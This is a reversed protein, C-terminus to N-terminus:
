ARRHAATTATTRQAGRRGARARRKASLAKTVVTAPVANLAVQFVQASWRPVSDPAADEAAVEQQVLAVPGDPTYRLDLIRRRQGPATGGAPPTDVYEVDIEGVIAETPLDDAILQAHPAITHTPPTPGTTAGREGADPADTFARATCPSLRHVSYWGKMKLQSQWHKIQYRNRRPDVLEVEYPGSRRVRNKFKTRFENQTNRLWVIDGEKFMEKGGQRAAAKQKRQRDYLLRKRRGDASAQLAGARRAAKETVMRQQYEAYTEDSRPKAYQSPREAVPSDLARDLQLVPKQGFTLEFPSHKRTQSVATWFSWRAADLHAAWESDTHPSTVVPTYARVAAKFTKVAREIMGNAQANRPAIPDLECGLRAALAKMGEGVMPRDNDVTIRKPTGYRMVWIREFAAGVDEASKTHVLDYELASTARDIVLVVLPANDDGASKEFEVVDVHVHEFAGPLDADTGLFADPPGESFQQCRCRAIYNKVAKQMNAWWVRERLRLVTSEASRHGGGDLPAAHARAIWKTREEPPIYLRPGVSGGSPFVVLRGHRDRAPRLAQARRPAAKGDAAMALDRTWASGDAATAYALNIREGNLMPYGGTAHIHREADLAQQELVTDSTEPEPQWVDDEDGNIAATNDADAVGDLNAPDTPLTPEAPEPEERWEDDDSGAGDAHPAAAHDTVLAPTSAPPSASDSTSHASDATDGSSADSGADASDNDSVGDEDDSAAAPAPAFTAAAAASAPVAALRPPAAGGSGGQARAEVHAQAVAMARALMAKLEPVDTDDPDASDFQRSDPDAPNRSTRVLETKIDRLDGFQLEILFRNVADSMPKVQRKRFHATSASDTVLTTGAVTGILWDPFKQLADRFALMELENCHLRQEFHATARGGCFVPREVDDRGVQAGIYGLGTKCGDVYLRVPLTPDYVSLAMANAFMLRAEYFLAISAESWELPRNYRIISRLARQMAPWGPVFRGWFAGKSLFRTLGANTTPRRYNAMSEIRARHPEYTGAACDVDHGLVIPKPTVLQAKDIGICLNRSAARRLFDLALDIAGDVGNHSGDIADDVYVLREKTALHADSWRQATALIDALGFPARLWIFYTGDHWQTNTLPQSDPHLRFQHFLSKADWVNVFDASAAFQLVDSMLPPAYRDQVTADNLRRFDVAVRHGKVNHDHDFKPAVVPQSVVCTEGPETDRIIDYEYWTSKAKDMTAKKRASFKRRRSYIDHLNTGEKLWIRHVSGAGTVPGPAVPPADASSLTLNPIESVGDKFRQKQEATMYENEDIMDYLKDHASAYLYDPTSEGHGTSPAVPAADLAPDHHPTSLDPMYVRAAASAAPRWVHAAAAHALVDRAGHRAAADRQRGTGHGARALAASMLATRAAAVQDSNINAALEGTDPDVCVIDRGELVAEGCDFVLTVRQAALAAAFPGDPAADAAPPAGDAHPQDTPAPPADHLVVQVPQSTAGPVVITAGGMTSLTNDGFVLPEILDDVPYALVTRAGCLGPASIRLAVPAVPEPLERVSGDALELRSVPPVGVVDPLRAAGRVLDARVLAETGGLDALVAHLIPEGVPAGSADLPAAVVHAVRARLRSTATPTAHTRAAVYKLSPETTTALAKGSKKARAGGTAPQNVGRSKVRLKLDAHKTFCIDLLERTSAASALADRATQTHDDMPVHTFLFSAFLHAAVADAIADKRPGAALDATANWAVEIASRVSAAADAMLAPANTRTIMATLPEDSKPSPWSAPSHPAVRGAALAAARWLADPKDASPHMLAAQLAARRAIDTDGAYQALVRAFLAGSEGGLLAVFKNLRAADRHPRLLAFVDDLTRLTAARVATATLAKDLRTALEAETAGTVSLAEAERKTRTAEAAEKQAAAAALQAVRLEADATDRAAAQATQAAIAAALQALAEEAM